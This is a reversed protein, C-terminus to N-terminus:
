RNQPNFIGINQQSLFTFNGGAFQCRVFHYLFLHSGFGCACPDLFRLASTGDSMILHKGDQTLGWGEGSYPFTGTQTFTALDYILGTRHQWTLQFLRDGMIAIGEGFFQPIPVLAQVEGSNLDVRRLTSDGKGGTGEYLQGDIVVLGQTFAGVDHPYSAVVKYSWVEAQVTSKLQACATMNIISVLLLLFMSLALRRPQM